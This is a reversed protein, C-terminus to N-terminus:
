IKGALIKTFEGLDTELAEAMRVITDLQPQCKGAEVRAIYPQQTGALEALDKQSLGKSLRLARLSREGSYFEQGVWQHGRKISEAMGPDASLEQIFDDISIAGPVSKTAVGTWFKAETKVVVGPQGSPRKYSTTTRYSESLSKIAQSM